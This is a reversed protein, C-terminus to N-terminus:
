TAIRPVDSAPALITEGPAFYKLTSARVIRDLDGESMAAFPAHPKLAQKLGALVSPAPVPSHPLSAHAGNLTTPVANRLRAPM